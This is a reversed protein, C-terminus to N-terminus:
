LCKLFDILKSRADESLDDGFTHGTNLMGTYLEPKTPDVEVGTIESLARSLQAYQKPTRWDPDFVRIYPDSQILNQIEQHNKASQDVYKWGVRKQDFNNPDTSSPYM